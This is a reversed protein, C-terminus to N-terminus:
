PQDGAAAVVARLHKASAIQAQRMGLHWDRGQAGTQRDALRQNTAAWMEHEDALDLVATLAAVLWPVDRHADCIFSADFTRPKGHEDRYSTHAVTVATDVNSTGDQDAMVSMGWLKWVGPTAAAHAETLQRLRDRIDATV